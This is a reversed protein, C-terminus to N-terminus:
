TQSLNLTSSNKTAKSVLVTSPQNLSKFQATLTSPQKAKIDSNSNLPPEYLHITGGLEYNIVIGNSKQVVIDGYTTKTISDGTVADKFEVYGDLMKGGPEDGYYVGLLHNGM